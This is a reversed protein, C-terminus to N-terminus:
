GSAKTENVAALHLDYVGFSDFITRVQCIDLDLCLLTESATKVVGAQNSNGNLIDMIRINEMIVTELGSERSQPVLYLDILNGAALWYGNAEAPDLHITILRRGPGADPYLIGSATQFLHNRSILEGPQLNVATWQGEALDISGIYSDPVIQAPLEVLTVQDARIQNGAAIEQSAAVYLAKKEKTHGLGATWALCVLSLTILITLIIQKNKRM